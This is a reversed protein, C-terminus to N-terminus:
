GPYNVPCTRTDRTLPLDTFSAPAYSKPTSTELRGLNQVLTPGRTAQRATRPASPPARSASRTM